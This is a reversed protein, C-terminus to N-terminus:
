SQDGPLKSKAQLGPNGFEAPLSRNLTIASIAILERVRSASDAAVDSLSEAAPRVTVEM